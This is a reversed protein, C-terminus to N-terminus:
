LVSLQLCSLISKLNEKIGMTVPRKKLCNISGLINSSVQLCLHLTLECETHKKLNGVHPAYHRAAVFSCQGSLPYKKDCSYFPKNSIISHKYNVKILHSAGQFWGGVSRKYKCVTTGLLDNWLATFRDKHIGVFRPSKLCKDSYILFFCM